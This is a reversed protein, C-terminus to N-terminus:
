RPPPVGAADCAAVRAAELRRLVLREESAARVPRRVTASRPVTAEALTRREMRLLGAGDAFALTWERTITEKADPGAEGANLTLPRDRVERLTYRQVTRGAHMSDALRTLRLGATDTATGGARLPIAPLPPLLDEMTRGIDSVDGVAPPVWPRDEGRWAGDATLVGGFEGGLVGDTDPALEGDANRRRLTLADYWGVLRVGDAASGRAQLVFTGERRVTEERREAGVESRLLTTRREDFVACSFQEAGYRADQAVAITPLVLLLAIAHGAARPPCAIRAPRVSCVGVHARRALALAGTHPHAGDPPSIRARHEPM